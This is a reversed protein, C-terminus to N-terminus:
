YYQHTYRYWRMERGHYIEIKIKLSIRRSCRLVHDVNLRFRKRSIERRRNQCISIWKPFRYIAIFGLLTMSRGWDREHIRWYRPPHGFGLFPETGRSPGEDLFKAFSIGHFKATVWVAVGDKRGEMIDKRKWAINRRALFECHRSSVVHNRRSERKSKM